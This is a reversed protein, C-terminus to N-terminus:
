MGANESASTSSSRWMGKQPCMTRWIVNLKLKEVIM